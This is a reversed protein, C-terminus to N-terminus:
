NSKTWVGDSHYHRFGLNCEKCEYLDFVDDDKPTWTMFLSLTSGCYPCVPPEGQIDLCNPRGEFCGGSINANDLEEDPMEGQSNLFKFYSEAQDTTLEINNEKALAVIDDVSKASSAKLLIKSSLKM